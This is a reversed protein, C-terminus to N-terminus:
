IWIDSHVHKNGVVAYVEIAKERVQVRDVLASPSSIVITTITYSVFIRPHIGSTEDRLYEIEYIREDSMTPLAYLSYKGDM